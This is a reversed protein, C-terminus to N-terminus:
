SGRCLGRRHLKPPTVELNGATRRPGIRGLLPVQNSRETEEVLIVDGACTIGAVHMSM